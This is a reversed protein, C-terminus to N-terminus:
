WSLALALASGRICVTAHTKEKRRHRKRDLTLDAVHVTLVALAGLLCINRARFARESRRRLAVVGAPDDCAQYAQYHRYGSRDSAWAGALTALFGGLLLVGPLWRKQGLQRVGPLIDGLRLPPLDAPTAEQAQEPPRAQPGTTQANLSPGAFFSLTLLLVWFHKEM